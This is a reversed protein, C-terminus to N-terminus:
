IYDVTDLRDHPLGEKYIRRERGPHQTVAQAGQLRSRKKGAPNGGLTERIERSSPEHTMAIQYDSVYDYAARALAMNRGM